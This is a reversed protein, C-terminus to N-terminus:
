PGAIAAKTVMLSPVLGLLSSISSSFAWTALFIPARARGSSRMKVESRGLVREPFIM